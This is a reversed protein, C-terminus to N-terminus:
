RTESTTEFQPDGDGTLEAMQRSRRRICICLAALMTILLAVFMLASLWLQPTSSPYFVRVASFIWVVFGTLIAVPRYSTTKTAMRKEKCYAVYEERHESFIKSRGLLLLILSVVTYIPLAILWVFGGVYVAFVVILLADWGSILTLSLSLISLYLLVPFAALQLWWFLLRACRQEFALVRHRFARSIRDSPETKPLTRKDIPPLAPDTAWLSLIMRRQRKQSVGYVATLIASTLILLMTCLVYAAGVDDNVKLIGVLLGTIFPIQFLVGVLIWAFIRALRCTRRWQAIMLGKQPDDRRGEVPETGDSAEVRGGSLLEEVTVGLIEALRVLKATQPKAAGNEWKSVAKNSVGLLAGLEAQSLGKETRKEYLYNGFQFDNM